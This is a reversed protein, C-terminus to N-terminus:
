LLAQRIKSLTPLLTNFLALSETPKSVYGAPGLPQNSEPNSYHVHIHEELGEKSTEVTGNAVVNSLTGLSTQGRRRNENGGEGSTSQGEFDPM